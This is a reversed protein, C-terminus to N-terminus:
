GLTVSAMTTATDNRGSAGDWHRLIVDALEAPTSTRRIFVMVAGPHQHGFWTRQRRAYAVTHRVLLAALDARSPIRGALFEAIDRYGLAQRATPTGLLGRGMLTQAEAIWGAQLMASTRAEIRPKLVAMDPMLVYQDFHRQPPRAPLRRHMQWPAEGTLRVVELARLLRRPNRLVEPPIPVAARTRAELEQRLADLGGPLALCRQLEAALAPDSPLLNLGYILSRAYLGTGGALVAIRGRGEIEDLSAEAMGVYAAADCPERLDLCDVLHHPVRALEAPSPKATGIDLGRYVLMSDCNVIEGGLREAVLIATDSKWSCTPGLVALHSRTM